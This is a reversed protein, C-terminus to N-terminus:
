LLYVLLLFIAITPPDLPPSNTPAHEKLEKFLGENQNEWYLTETLFKELEKYTAFYLLPYDNNYLLSQKVDKNTAQEAKIEPLLTSHVDFIDPLVWNKPSPIDSIPAEEFVEDMLTYVKGSLEILDPSFPDVIPAIEEKEKNGTFLLWIIFAIDEKNIEDQIYEAKIPYFPLYASYNSYYLESFAKWGGSQSIVDQLYMACKIPLNNILLDTRGSRGDVSNSILTQLRNAFGLYWEDTITKKKRQNVDLWNQMSEDIMGSIKVYGGLPLWGVAYETDSKKPKFKFLTFWPDFFLCFKEVRTKFLRAFLFHGGEHIIVLLSLSMILQLARILFTEM